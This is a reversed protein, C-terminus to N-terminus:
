IQNSRLTYSLSDSGSNTDLGTDPTLLPSKTAGRSLVRSLMHGTMCSLVLCKVKQELTIKGTVGEQACVCVYLGSCRSVRPWTPPTPALVKLLGAQKTSTNTHTHTQFRHAAKFNM